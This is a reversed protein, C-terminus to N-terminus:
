LTVAASPAKGAEVQVVTITQGSKLPPTTIVWKGDNGVTTTAKTADNAAGGLGPPKVFSSMNTIATTSPYTILPRNALEDAGTAAYSVSQPIALSAFVMLPILLLATFKRLTFEKM